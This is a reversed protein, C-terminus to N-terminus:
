DRAMDRLTDFDPLTPKKNSLSMTMITEM